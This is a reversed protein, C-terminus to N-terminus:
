FECPDTVIDMDMNTDLMYRRRFMNKLMEPAEEAYYLVRNNDRSLNAARCCWTNSNMGWKQASTLQERLDDRYTTMQFNGENWVVRKEQMFLEGRTEKQFSAEGWVWRERLSKEERWRAETMNVLLPVEGWMVEGCVEHPSASSTGWGLMGENLVGVETWIYYKGEVNQIVLNLESLM